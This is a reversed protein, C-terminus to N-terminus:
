NTSEMGKLRLNSAFYITFGHLMCKRGAFIKNFTKPIENLTIKACQKLAIEVKNPNKILLVPHILIILLTVLPWKSAKAHLHLFIIKYWFVRSHSIFMGARKNIKLSKERCCARIKCLTKIWLLMKSWFYWKPQLICM